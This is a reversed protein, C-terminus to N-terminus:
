KLPFVKKVEKDLIAGQPGCFQLNLAFKLEAGVLQFDV